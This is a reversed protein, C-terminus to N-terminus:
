TTDESMKDYKMQMEEMYKGHAEYSWVADKYHQQGEESTL